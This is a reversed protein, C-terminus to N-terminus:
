SQCARDNDSKTFLGVDEISLVLADSAENSAVSWIPDAVERM